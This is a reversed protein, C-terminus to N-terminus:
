QEYSRWSKLDWGLMQELQSIEPDFIAQLQRRVNCDMSSAYTGSNTNVSYTIPAEHDLGLFRHIRQLVTLFNDSLDDHRLILTQNQPFFSWLRRLQESYFGRSIYSYVRHQLPLAERCRSAEDKIAEPFPSKDWGRNHEMSWHSYARDVPNRLCLIIRMNPNYSWIRQMSPQWYCYIPTADGLIKNQSISAGFRELYKTAVLEKNNWHVSEDDFFHLEKEPPIFIKSHQSLFNALSTTGSKQAGAIIFDIM